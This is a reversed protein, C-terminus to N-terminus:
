PKAIGQDAWRLLTHIERAAEVAEAEVGVVVGHTSQATWSMNLSEAM